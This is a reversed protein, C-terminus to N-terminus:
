APEMHATLKQGVRDVFAMFAERVVGLYKAVAHLFTTHAVRRQYDTHDDDDRLSGRKRLYETFREDHQGMMIHLAARKRGTYQRTIREIMINSEVQRSEESSITNLVADYSENQNEDTIRQQSESACILEYKNGGFGDAGTNVMRARKNRTGSEIINLVESTCSRRLYNLVYDFSKKTPILSHYARIAKLMVESQFDRRDTNEAKCMFSLKKHVRTQIHARLKPVYLEFQAKHQKMSKVTLDNTTLDRSIVSQKVLAKFKRRAFLRRLLGIDSGDIFAQLKNLSDANFPALGLFLTAYKLNVTLESKAQLALRMEKGSMGSPSLDYAKVAHQFHFADTVGALNLICQEAIMFGDHTECNIGVSNLYKVLM